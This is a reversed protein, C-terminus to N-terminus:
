HMVSALRLVPFTSFPPECGLEDPFKGNRDPILVQMIPYEDTAFYEGVQIAYETRAYNNARIVKVPLRAGPLLVTQGDEFPARAAIMQQSLDNLFGARATGIVLLEPLTILNTNCINGVTYAFPIFGDDKQECDAFVGIISRGSQNIDQTITDYFKRRLNPKM